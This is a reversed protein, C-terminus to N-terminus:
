RQLSRSDSFARSVLKHSSMLARAIGTRFLEEGGLTDSRSMMPNISIQALEQTFM